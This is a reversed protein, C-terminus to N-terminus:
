ISWALRAELPLNRPGLAPLPMMQRELVSRRLPVQVQVRLKQERPLAPPSVRLMEVMLPLGQAQRSEQM